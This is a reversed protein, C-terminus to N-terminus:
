GSSIGDVVWLIYIALSDHCFNMFIADPNKEIDPFHCM